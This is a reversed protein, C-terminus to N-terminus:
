CTAPLPDLNCHSWRVCHQLPVLSTSTQYVFLEFGKMQEEGYRLGSQTIYYSSADASCLGTQPTQVAGFDQQFVGLIPSAFRDELQRCRAFKPWGPHLSSPQVPSSRLIPAGPGSLVHCRRPGPTRVQPCQDIFLLVACAEQAPLSFLCLGLSGALRVSWPQSLRRRHRLGLHGGGAGTQM